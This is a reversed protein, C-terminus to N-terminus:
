SEHLLIEHRLEWYKEPHDGNMLITRNKATSGVWKNWPVDELVRIGYRDQYAIVAICWVKGFVSTVQVIWGPYSTPPIPKFGGLFEIKGEQLARCIAKRSCNKELWMLIHNKNQFHIM